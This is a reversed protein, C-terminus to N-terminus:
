LYIGGLLGRPFIKESLNEVERSLIVGLRGFGVSTRRMSLFGGGPLIGPAWRLFVIRLLRFVRDQVPQVGCHIKAGLVLFVNQCTQAGHRQNQNNAHHPNKQGAGRIGVVPFNQVIHKESIDGHAAHGFVFGDGCHFGDGILGVACLGHYYVQRTYLYFQGSLVGFRSQIHFFRHGGSIGIASGAGGLFLLLGIGSGFDLGIDDVKCVIHIHIFFVDAAHQFAIRSIGPTGQGLGFIAQLTFLRLKRRIFKIFFGGTLSQHDGHTGRTDPKIRLRHKLLNQLGISVVLKQHRYLGNLFQRLRIGDIQFGDVLFEINSRYIGGDIWGSGFDLGAGVAILEIQFFRFFQHVFRFESFFDTNGHFVNLRINQVFRRQELINQAGPLGLM